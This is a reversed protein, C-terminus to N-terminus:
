KKIEPYLLETLRTNLRNATRALRVADKPFDTRFLEADLQKEDAAYALLLELDEAERRTLKFMVSTSKIPM